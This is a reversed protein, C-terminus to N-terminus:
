QLSKRKSEMIRKIFDTIIEASREPELQLLFHKTNIEVIELEPKIAKLDLVNHMKILHDKQSVICLAPVDIKEFLKRADVKLIAKVRASIARPHVTKAANLAMNSFSKFRADCCISRLRITTPWLAYIPSVSLHSICSPLFKFPNRAFTACLIVGLLGNPKEAATMIALPGSFSEGLVVFNNENPIADSVIHKLDEYGYPENEPYSVVVPKIWAPLFETMPKFLKGTGDLGPLLVISIDNM